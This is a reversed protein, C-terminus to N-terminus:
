SINEIAKFLKDFFVDSKKTTFTKKKFFALRDNEESTYSIYDKELLDVIIKEGFISTFYIFRECTNTIKWVNQKENILKYLLINCKNKIARYKFVINLLGSFSCLYSFTSFYIVWFSYLCFCFLVFSVIFFLFSLSLFM